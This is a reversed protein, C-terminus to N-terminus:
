KQADLAENVLKDAAANKSRPVHEFTISRFESLLVKIDALLLKLEENKVRYEGRVQKVVLESDLYCMLDEVGEKRARTIGALLARYEAQNNTGTGIHEKYLIPAHGVGSLVFGIAAPGPNGRAGGDTYLTARKM